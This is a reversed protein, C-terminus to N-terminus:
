AAGNVDAGEIRGNPYFTALDVEPLDDPHVFPVVREAATPIPPPDSQPPMVVEVTLAGAIVAQCQALRQSRRELEIKANRIWRADEEAQRTAEAYTM